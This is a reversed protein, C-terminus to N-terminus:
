YSGPKAAPIPAPRTSSGCGSDRAGRLRPQGATVVVLRYKFIPETALAM